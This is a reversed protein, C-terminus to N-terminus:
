PCINIINFYALIGHTDWSNIMNIWENSQHSRGSASSAPFGGEGPATLGLPPTPVTGSPPPPGPPGEVACFVDFWVLMGM